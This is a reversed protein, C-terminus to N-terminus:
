NNSIVLPYIFIKGGGGGGGPSEQLPEIFKAHQQQTRPPTSHSSTSYSDEGLKDQGRTHNQSHGLRGVSDRARSWVDVDSESSPSEESEEVSSRDGAPTLSNGSWSQKSKQDLIDVERKLRLSLSFPSNKKALFHYSPPSLYVLSRKLDGIVSGSTSLTQGLFERASSATVDTSGRSSQTHPASRDREPFRGGGSKLTRHHDFLSTSSSGIKTILPRPM